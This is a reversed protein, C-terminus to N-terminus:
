DIIFTYNLGATFNQMQEMNGNSFYYQYGLEFGFANKHDLSFMFGLRPVFGFHWGSQGEYDRLYYGFEVSMNKENSLSYDYKGYVTSLGLGIYPKLKENKTFYYNCFLTLPIQSASWLYKRPLFDVKYTKPYFYNYGIELGASLKIDQLQFELLLNGGVGWEYNKSLDGQVVMYYPRISMFIDYPEGNTLRHRQAFASGNAFVLLFSVIIISVSVIKKM